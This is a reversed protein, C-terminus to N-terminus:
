LKENEEPLLEDTAGFLDPRKEAFIALNATVEDGPATVRNDERARM